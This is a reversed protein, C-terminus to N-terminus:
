WSVAYTYTRQLNITINTRSWHPLKPCFALYLQTGNYRSGTHCSIAYMVLRLIFWRKLGCYVDWVEGYGRVPRAIPHIKYPNQPFNVANYRCRVTNRSHAAYSGWLDRYSYQRYYKHGCISEGWLPGTINVKSIKRTAPKLLSNLLCNLQRHNSIGNIMHRWHLTDVGLGRKLIVSVLSDGHHVKLWHSCQFNDFHCSGTCGTILIEDFHRCKRKLSLPQRKM